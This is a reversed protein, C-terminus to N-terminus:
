QALWRLTWTASADEALRDKLWPLAERCHDELPWPPNHIILGSGYMGHTGAAARTRLEIQLLKPLGAETLRDIVHAAPNGPLLPYWLLYCGTNWKRRARLLLDPAQRYEDKREYPPDILVLGRRQRPPVLAPLGEYADRLHIHVQKDGGWRRLLQEHDSAHLELLTLDDQPRLLARALGPSGPYRALTGNPNYSAVARQYPALPPPAAEKWVRHIGTRFEANKQAMAERLAYVGAGAHTDLIGLPTEKRQQLSLAMCLVAHKLVDAANGAHFAHRYSLM